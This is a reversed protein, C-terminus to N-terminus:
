DLPVSPDTKAGRYHDDSVCIFQYRLDGEFELKRKATSCAEANKFPIAIKGQYGDYANTHLSSLFIIMWYM